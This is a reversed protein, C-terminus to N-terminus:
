PRAPRACPSAIAVGPQPWVVAGSVERAASREDATRAPNEAESFRDTPPTGRLPMLLARNPESPREMWSLGLSTADTMLVGLLMLAVRM